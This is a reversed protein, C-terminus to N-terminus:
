DIPKPWNKKAKSRRKRLSNSWRRFLRTHKWTKSNLVMNLESTRTELETKLKEIESSLSIPYSRPTVTKKRSSAALDSQLELFYTALRLQDRNESALKFLNAVPNDDDGVYLIGLGHGHYLEIHPYKKSVEDWFRWVGFAREHVNTDHFIMVGRSSLKDLWTEFDHRVAEYSHFGDIHILDISGNEFLNGAEDFYSKIFIQDPYREKLVVKFNEFVTQDHFGAHPDGEWSDIAVCETGLGLSNSFGCASYFSMGNHVGLEVYRRPKLLSFLMGLSPVLNTWASFVNVPPPLLSSRLANVVDEFLRDASADQDVSEPLSEFRSPGTSQDGYIPQPLLEITGNKVEAFAQADRPLNAQLWDKEKDARRLDVSSVGNVINSSTKQSAGALSLTPYGAQKPDVASANPSGYDSALGALMQDTVMEGDLAFRVVKHHYGEGPMLNHKQKQLDIANAAKYRAREVSRVPLHLMPFGLRLDEEPHSLDPRVNHNGAALVYNPYSEAYNRSLAIKCFSSLRGSWYFEQTLDFQSFTGFEKPILNIWPLHMVEGGFKNLRQELDLRDEVHLFEDSDICFVWDAGKSFAVKSLTTLVEAQYKALYPLAIREISAHCEAYGDIAETTGDSSQMDAIIMGDLLSGHYSLFGDIIDIENRVMAVAFIKM